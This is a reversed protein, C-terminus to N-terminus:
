ATEAEKAPQTKRQRAAHKYQIAAHPVGRVPAVEPFAQELTLGAGDAIERQGRRMASIVEPHRVLAAAAQLSRYEAVSILITEPRGRSTLVLQGMQESISRSLQMLDKRVATIPLTQNTNKM